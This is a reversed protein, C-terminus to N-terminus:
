SGFISTYRQDINTKLQNSPVIVLTRKKLCFNKNLQYALVTGKGTGTPAIVVPNDQYFNILNLQSEQYKRLM